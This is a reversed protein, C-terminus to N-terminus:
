ASERQLLLKWVADSGGPTLNLWCNLFTMESHHAEATWDFYLGGDDTATVWPM